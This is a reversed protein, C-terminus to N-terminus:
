MIVLYLSTNGWFVGYDVLRIDLVTKRDASVLHTIDCPPLCKSEPIYGTQTMQESFGKIKEGNVIIEDDVAWKAKGTPDGAIYVRQTGLRKVTVTKRKFNWRLSRDSRHPSSSRVKMGSDDFIKYSTPEIEIGGTEPEDQLPSVKVPEITQTEGKAEETEKIVAKALNTSKTEKQNVEPRSEVKQRPAEIQGQDQNWPRLLLLIGGIILCLFFILFIATRSITRSEIRVPEKKPTEPKDQHLLGAIEKLTNGRLAFQAGCNNCVFVNGSSVGPIGGTEDQSLGKLSFSRCGPCRTFKEIIYREEMTLGWIQTSKPRREDRAPSQGAIDNDLQRRIFGISEKKFYYANFLIIDCEQLNNLRDIPGLDVMLIQRIQQKGNL